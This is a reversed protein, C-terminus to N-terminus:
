EAEMRVLLTNKGDPKCIGCARRTLKGANAWSVLRPDKMKKCDSKKHFRMGGDTPIWVANKTEDLAEPTTGWLLLTMTEDDFVGTQPLRNEKQFAYVAKLMKRDFVDDMDTEDIYIEDWRSFIERESMEAEKCEVYDEEEGFCVTKLEIDEKEMYEQRWLYMKLWKIVPGRDGVQVFCECFDPSEGCICTIEAVASQLLVILFLLIGICKKM